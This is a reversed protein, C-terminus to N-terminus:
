PLSSSRPGTTPSLRLAAHATRPLPPSRVTDRGCLSCPAAARPLPSPPDLGPVRHFRAASFDLAPQAVGLELNTPELAIEGERRFPEAVRALPAVGGGILADLGLPPRGLGLALMFRGRRLASRGFAIEAGHVARHSCPGAFLVVHSPPERGLPDRHTLELFRQLVTGLRCSREFD